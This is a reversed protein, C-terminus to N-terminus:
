TTLVRPLWSSWCITTLAKADGGCIRGRSSSAASGFWPTANAKALTPTMRRNTDIKV